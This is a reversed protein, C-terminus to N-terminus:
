IYMRHTLPLGLETRLQDSVSRPIVAVSIQGRSKLMASLRQCTTREGNIAVIRCVKHIQQQPNAQNWEHFLGYDEVESIYLHPYEDRDAYALFISSERWTIGLEDSSLTVMDRVPEKIQLGVRGHRILAEFSTAVYIKAFLGANFIEGLFWHEEILKKREEHM